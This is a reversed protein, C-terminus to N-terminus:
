SKKRKIIFCAVLGLCALPIGGVSSSCGRKKPTSEVKSEVKSETKSESQSTTESEPESSSESEQESEIPREPMETIEEIQKKGCTCVRERRGVETQTPEKTITWEGYVHNEAYNYTIDYNNLVDQGNEDKIQLTDFVIKCNERKLTFQAVTDGTALGDVYIMNDDSSLVDEVQPLTTIALAKKSITYIKEIEGSYVGIGKIVVKIDGASTLDATQNEGRFYTLTYHIGETLTEGDKVIPAIAKANGDYVGAGVTIDTKTIDYNLAGKFLDENPEQALALTVTNVGNSLIQGDTFAQGNVAVSSYQNGQSYLDIKDQTVAIDGSSLEKMLLKGGETRYEVKNLSEITLDNEAFFTSISIYNRNQFYTLDLTNRAIVEGNVTAFLCAVNGNGAGTQENYVYKILGVELTVTEGLEIEYEFINLPHGNPRDLSIGNPMFSFCYGNKGTEDALVTVNLDKFQNPTM